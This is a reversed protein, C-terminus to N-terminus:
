IKGKLIIEKVEDVQLAPVNVLLPPTSFVVEVHERAVGESELHSVFALCSKLLRKKHGYHPVTESHEGLKINVEHRSVTIIPKGM